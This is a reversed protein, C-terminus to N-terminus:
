EHRPLTVSIATGKNIQSELEITGKNTDVFEKVLILGLGTGKEDNTGPTSSSKDIKFLNKIRDEQIGIGTDKVTFSIQNEAPETIIIEIKGNEPTFKIANTVLNRIIVRIMNRDAWVQHLNEGKPNMACSINKAYATNCIVELTEQIEQNLNLLEPHYEMKGQQSRSWTLLNEMLNYTNVASQHLKELMVKQHTTDSSDIEEVLIESLGMIAGVPNKLDHAIISLFKEKQNNLELLQSNTQALRNKHLALQQSKLRTLRFQRALTKQSYHIGFIGILLFILHFTTITALEGRLKKIYPFAEISVSIGGRVQGVQYGQEAHCQMCSEEVMLPAMFRYYQLENLSTKEFQFANGEEFSNLAKQEWPDAANLERIPNLSTIHYLIGNNREALESIQRTMYAPNILTLLLSDTTYLDRNPVKLYPNPPTKENALVYVGGHMSNWARTTIIEQFFSDATEKVKDQNSRLTSWIIFSLSALVFM